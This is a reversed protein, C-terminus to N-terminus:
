WGDVAVLLRPSPKSGRTGGRSKALTSARDAALRDRLPLLHHARAYKQRRHQRERRRRGERLSLGTARRASCARLTGGARLARDRIQGPQPRVGIEGAELRRDRTGARHAVFRPKGVADGIELLQDAVVGIRDELGLGRFHHLLVALNREGAVTVRRRAVLAPRAAHRVHEPVEDDLDDLLRVPDRDDVAVAIFHAAHAEVVGMGRLHRRGPVAVRDPVVFAVRQDDVGDADLDPGYAMTSM